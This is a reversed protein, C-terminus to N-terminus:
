ATRCHEELVSHPCHVEAMVGMGGSHLLPEILGRVGGKERTTNLLKWMQPCTEYRSAHVGIGMKCRYHWTLTALIKGEKTYHLLEEDEPEHDYVSGKRDAWRHRVKAVQPFAPRNPDMIKMCVGQKSWEFLDGDGTQRGVIVLNGTEQALKAVVAAIESKEEIYRVVKVRPFSQDLALKEAGNLYICYQKEIGTGDIFGKAEAACDALYFVM